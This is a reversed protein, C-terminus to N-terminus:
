DYDPGEWADFFANGDEYIDDISELAEIQRPTLFGRENFFDKCSEVFRCPYHVLASALAEPYEKKGIFMKDFEDAESTTNNV